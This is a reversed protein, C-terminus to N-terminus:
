EVSEMDIAYGLVEGVDTCKGKVTIEDGQEMELIKEEQDENQIYCQINTLDLEGSSISIYSMQSDIVSLEGTIELYHDKYEKSAKAANKSLAESLEKASVKKYTIEQETKTDSKASSSGDEDTSDGGFVTGLIIVAIVILIIWKLKGGKKEKM